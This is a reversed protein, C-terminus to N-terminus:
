KNCEKKNDNIAESETKNVIADAMVLYPLALGINATTNEFLMCIASIISVRKVDQEAGKPLLVYPMFYMFMTIIGYYVICKIYFNDVIYVQMFEEGSAFPMVHCGMATYAVISYWIRGSLLHDAQAVIDNNMSLLTVVYVSLLACLVFAYKSIIALRKGDKILQLFLYIVFVGISTRSLTISYILLALVTPLFFDKIKKNKILLLWDIAIWIGIMGVTNPNSFYFSGGLTEGTTASFVDMGEALCDIVYLAVHSILFMAKTVIDIWIVRRISVGKIAISGLFFLVLFAPAGYLYLFVMAASSLMILFLRKKTYRDFLIKLGYIGCAILILARYTSGSIEVLTSANLLCVFVTLLFSAYYLYYTKFAIRKM